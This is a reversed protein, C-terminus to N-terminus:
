EVTSLDPVDLFEATQLIEYVNKWSLLLEGSEMWSLIIELVDGPVTPLKFDIRDKEYSFIKYLVNSHVAVIVKAVFHKKGDKSEISTDYFEDVEPTCLFDNLNGPFEAAM